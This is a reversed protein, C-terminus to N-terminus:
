QACSNAPNWQVPGQSLRLIGGGIKAGSVEIVSDNPHFKRNASKYPEQIRKVTEVIDLASLADIDM